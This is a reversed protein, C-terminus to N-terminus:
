FHFGIGLYAGYRHEFRNGYDCAIGAKVNFPIKKTSYLCEALFSFEELPTPYSNGYTGFNRSWTMLSKWSLGNSIAGKMGFHHMWMRTSEFGESIGDTGIAPVFLPTGMMQQYHTFGSTYLGHNFYNDMGRGTMRTPDEPTPSPKMHYSGSQNLTYLYEYVFDTIFAKRNKKGLHIGWLGDRINVLEMGSRDEFPHNWYFSTSVNTWEKKLELNYSGLGNGAVNIQDSQTASSGGKMGLIYRFYESLGPQEGYVASTGGWFVYHDIGISLSLNSSISSKFCLNKHHLHANTVAQNDWLLGEEYEFRFSLWRKAFFLPIFGGSSVSFGPVPRANGSRYMNGNTSSLGEYIVPDSEAGAKFLLSRYRLGFWYENPHFESSGALGYVMNGGYTYGWKKLSDRELGRKLGAKFLLYTPHQLAFDGNNNATMWFPLEKGSSVLTTESVTFDAFSGKKEQAFLARAVLFLSLTFIYRLM